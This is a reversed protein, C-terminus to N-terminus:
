KATKRFVISGIAFLVIGIAILVGCHILMERWGFGRWVAGEFAVITWKIPSISSAIRIWSPMFFLPVMGGGIMAMILMAAWGIGSASAETKGIVALLMMIGMFCVASSILAMFFFLYSAPRVGLVLTFIALLLSCVVVIALFCAMGKGALVQSLSIPSMRLRVLTGRTREVVLGIGFAAACGIMAWVLAQPFTVEFSNKPGDWNVSVENMEFEIPQFQLENEEAVATDGKMDSSMLVSMATDMQVLFQELNGYEDREHEPLDHLYDQSTHLQETITSPDMMKKMFGQMYKGTLLGELMTAEAKRSPDVGIEIQVPEGWFMSQQRKGFGEPLLIYAVKKGKQVLDFAPEAPMAVVDLESTNILKDVFAQSQETSDQDAVVVPISTPGSGGGSFIVGFFISFIVPFFFVFFAGTPDRLLIKIDKIAIAWIAKM